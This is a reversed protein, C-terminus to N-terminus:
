ICIQLCTFYKCGRFTFVYHNETLVPSSHCETLKQFTMSLPIHATYPGLASEFGKPLFKQFSNSNICLYASLCLSPSLALSPCLARQFFDATQPVPVLVSVVCTSPSLCLLSLPLMGHAKFEHLFIPLLPPFFLFLFALLASFPYHLSRLWFLPIYYSRKLLETLRILKCAKRANKCEFVWFTFIHTGGTGSVREGGQCGGRQGQRANGKRGITKAARCQQQTSKTKASWKM